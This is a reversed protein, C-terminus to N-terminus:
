CESMRWSVLLWKAIEDCIADEISRRQDFFDPDGLLRENELIGDYSMEVHDLADEYPPEPPDWRTGCFVCLGDGGILCPAGPTTDRSACIRVTGEDM